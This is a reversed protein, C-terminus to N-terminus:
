DNHPEERGHKCTIKHSGGTYSINHESCYYHKGTVNHTTCLTNYSTTTSGSGTTGAGDCDPCTDGAAAYIENYDGDLECSECIDVENDWGCGDECVITYRYYTGDSESKINSDCLDCTKTSSSTSREEWEEDTISTGCDPCVSGYGCCTDCDGAPTTTTTANLTCLTGASCTTIPHLKSSSVTDHTSCYYHRGSVNHTTCTSDYSYVLVGEGGCDCAEFDSFLSAYDALERYLEEETGNFYTYILSWGCGTGYGSTGYCLYISDSEDCDSCELKVKYSGTGGCDECTGSASSITISTPESGCNCCITGYCCEETTTTENLTCFISAECTEANAYHGASSTGYWDHTTCYYHKGSVGHTECTSTYVYGKINITGDGGCIDCRHAELWGPIGYQSEYSWKGLNYCEACLDYSYIDGCGSCWFEWTYKRYSITTSCEMTRGCDGDCVWSVTPDTTILDLTGDAHNCWGNSCSSNTCPTTGTTQYVRNETCLTVSTCLEDDTSIQPGRCYTTFVGTKSKTKNGDSVKVTFKYTTYEKLGTLDWENTTSPGLSKGNINLTYYLTEADSNSVKATITATSITIDNVDVTVTYKGNSGDLKTTSSIIQGPLLDWIDKIENGQEGLNSQQDNANVVTEEAKGFFDGEIAIDITVGVLILMIVITIILAILTIGKQTKDRRM